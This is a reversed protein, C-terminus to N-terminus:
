ETEQTSNGTRDGLERIVKRTTQKYNGYDVVELHVGAAGIDNAMLMLRKAAEAESVKAYHSYNPLGYPRYHYQMIPLLLPVRGDIYDLLAKAKKETSEFPQRKDWQITNAALVDVVGEDIWTKWDAGLVERSSRDNVDLAPIGVWLEFDPNQKLGREHMRRLLETVRECVMDVWRPDRCDSPADEGYRNKFAKLMPDVYEYKPGWGGRRSFDIFVVEAGRELLEDFLALKYEMVEDFALSCRRMTPIGDYSRCLFQPHELSFSGVTWAASGHLEEFPWHIGSRLGRQKCMDMVTSVIDPTSEGYRLWGYSSRNDPVYRKDLHANGHLSPLDVKSQYRMVSGSCNRWLITTAGTEQVHDLIASWGEQKETDVKTAFDFHDVWAAIEFRREPINEAYSCATWTNLLICIAFIRRSPMDAGSFIKLFSRRAMVDSNRKLLMM